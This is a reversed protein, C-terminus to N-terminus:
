GTKSNEIPGTKASLREVEAILEPLLQRAAAIFAADRVAQCDDGTVEEHLSCIEKDGASVILAGDGRPTYCQWFEWVGATVGDVAARARQLLDSPM